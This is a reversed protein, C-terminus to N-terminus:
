RDYRLHVIKIVIIIQYFAVIISRHHVAIGATFSLSAILDYAKTAIMFNTSVQPVFQRVLDKTMKYISKSKETEEIRFVNKWWLDDSLKVITSFGIGSYYRYSGGLKQSRSTATSKASNGLFKENKLVKKFITNGVEFKQFIKSFKPNSIQFVMPYHRSVVM